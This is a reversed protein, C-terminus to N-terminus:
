TRRRLTRGTTGDEPQERESVAPLPRRVIADAEGASIGIGRLILAAVATDHREDVRNDIVRLMAAAVPGVLLDAAADERSYTFRGSRRGARLSAFVPGLMRTLLGPTSSWVRLLGAAWMPENRAQLIFRRSGISVREAPDAVRAYSKVIEDQLREAREVIAAELLEERTRFYNYFTGTAFGARAAIEHIAPVRMPEDRFLALAADILLARTRSRVRGLPAGAPRAKRPNM